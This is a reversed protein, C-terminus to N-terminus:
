DSQKPMGLENFPEDEVPEPKQEAPCNLIANPASHDITHETMPRGCVPCVADGVRKVVEDYPGVPPPGIVGFLKQNLWDLFRTYRDGAGHEDVGTEENM